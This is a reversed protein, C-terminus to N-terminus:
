GTRSLSVVPRQVRVQGAGDPLWVSGRRPRPMRRGEVRLEVERAGLHGHGAGLGQWTSRSTLRVDSSFPGAGGVLVLVAGRSRLRAVLPRVAGARVRTPAGVVVIDFGDILSALVDSLGAEAGGRPTRVLVLRDLAVGAERCAQLGLDPVGVVGLWAGASTAAAAVLLATSHAAQGDVVVTSGRALGQPLLDDLAPHVPLGREAALARTTTRPLLAALRDRSAPDRHASQRDTLIRAAVAMVGAYDFM